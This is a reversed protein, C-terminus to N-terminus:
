QNWQVSVMEENLKLVNQLLYPLQNIYSTMESFFLANSFIYEGMAEFIAVLEQNEDVSTITALYGNHKACSSSAKDWARFSPSVYFCSGSPTATFEDPCTVENNVTAGGSNSSESTEEIEALVSTFGSSPTNSAIITETDATKWTVKKVTAETIVSNGSWVKTTDTSYSTMTIDFIHSTMDTTSVQDNLGKERVPLTLTTWASDTVYDGLGRSLKCLKENRSYSIASCGNTLSCASACQIRSLKTVALLDVAFYGPEAKRM